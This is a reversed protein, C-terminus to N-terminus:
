LLGGPRIARDHRLKEAPLAPEGAAVATRDLRLKFNKTHGRRAIAAMEQRLRHLEEFARAWRNQTRALAYAASAGVIGVGIVAVDYRKM